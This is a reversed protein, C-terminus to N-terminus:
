GDLDRPHKILRLRACGKGLSRWDTAMDLLIATATKVVGDTMAALHGLLLELGPNHGVLLVRHAQPPADALVQLLDSVEAAYIRSDWRIADVPVGLERGILLATQRARQAPSSVFHDPKLGERALWRGMRPADRLGREALPRDFDSGAETKWDSKGHRLLILERSM